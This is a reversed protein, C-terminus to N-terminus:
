MMVLLHAMIAVRRLVEQQDVEKSSASGIGDVNTDMTIIPLPSEIDASSTVCIEDTTENVDDGDLMQENLLQENNNASVNHRRGIQM